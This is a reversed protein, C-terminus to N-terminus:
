IRYRVSAIVFIALGLGIVVYLIILYLSNSTITSQGNGNYGSYYISLNYYKNYSGTYDNINVIIKNGTYQYNSYNLPIITPLCPYTEDITISTNTLQGNFLLYNNIENSLSNYSIVTLIYHPPNFEYVFFHNKIVIFLNNNGRIIYTLTNFVTNGAGLPLYLYKIVNNSLFEQYNTAYLPLQTFNSTYFPIFLNNYNSDAFYLGSGYQPASSQSGLCNLNGGSNTIRVYESQSALIGCNGVDIINYINGFYGLPNDVSGIYPDEVSNSISANLSQTILNVFGLQQLYQGGNNEAFIINDDFGSVSLQNSVSDISITTILSSIFASTLSYIYVSGSQVTAIYMNGNNIFFQMYYYATSLTINYEISNSFDYISIITSSDGTNGSGFGIIMYNNYIELQYPQNTMTLFTSSKQSIVNFDLINDSDVYYLNNNFCGFIQNSSSIGSSYTISVNLSYNIPSFSSSDVFTNINNGIVNYNQNGQNLVALGTMIFFSVLVITIIKRLM